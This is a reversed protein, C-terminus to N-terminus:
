MEAKDMEKLVQNVKDTYTKVLDEQGGIIADGIINGDKDVIITTPTYQIEDSIKKFDGNGTLLTVGEYGADELISKVNDRDNNGDLCVTVMQVNDPLAKAFKAIDPMEEICPGCLLSWFNIVTVDKGELNEKTFSGGDLTEAEFSKLEGAKSETIQTGETVQSTGQETSAQQGSCGSFFVGVTLVMSFALVNKLIRM